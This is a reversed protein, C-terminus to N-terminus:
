PASHGHAPINWDWLLRGHPHVVLHGVRGARAAGLRPGAESGLVARAVATRGPGDLRQVAAGDRGREPAHTLHTTDNYVLVQHAAADAGLLITTLGTNEVRGILRPHRDPVGLLDSVLALILGGHCVVVAEEGSGLRAALRDFAARARVRLAELSEGGGMAVDEGRRLAALEEPFRARVETDTMGEWAGVDIERWCADPVPAGLGAATHAARQLDSCEIRAMPRDRLRRALAEAQARGRDSLPADGHGQWRGAANWASEGHRILTIRAPAPSM